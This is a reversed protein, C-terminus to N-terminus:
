FIKEFLDNMIADRRIKYVCTERFPNQGFVYKGDVGIDPRDTEYSDMFAANRNCLFAVAALDWIPFSWSHSCPVRKSMHKAVGWFLYSAIRSAGTSLMREIEDKTILLLNSVGECPIQVLPLAARFVFQEAVIDQMMNYERNYPHSFVHGGLRVIRIKNLIWPALCIASAVNTAAGLMLICLRNEESYGECARIMFDAAESRQPVFASQLFSSSGNFLPVDESAGMLDLLEKICAYAKQMGDQPTTANENVYPSACIGKVNIKDTSLLAYAIAIQDDASNSADSDIIVDIPKTMM